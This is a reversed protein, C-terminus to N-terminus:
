IHILSLKKGLRGAAQRAVSKQNLAHFISKRPLLPHGSLRAVDQLEDVVVPDVIYAPKIFKAAFEHALIGGLNSAHEGLIGASLDNLMMSDVAYTGSPIPKLLGGRGVFADISQLLINENKLTQLIAAKRFETQDNISEFHSLQETEHHIGHAFQCEKDFFLAVKTSTSGPNIALIKYM